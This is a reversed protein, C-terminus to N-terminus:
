TSNPENRPNPTKRKGPQTSHNFSNQRRSRGTTTTNNHHSPIRKSKKGVRSRHFGDIVVYKDNEPYTVIPQTYGDALISVKLLEMEPPAVKNPNYDNSLISDNKLWVICDVPEDKFPSISHLYLKLENLMSIQQEESLLEMRLKIIEKLREM